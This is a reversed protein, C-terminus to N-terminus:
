IGHEAQRHGIVVGESSGPSGEFQWNSPEQASIWDNLHSLCSLRINGGLVSSNVEKDQSM